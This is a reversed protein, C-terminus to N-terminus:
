FTGTYGSLVLPSLEIFGLIISPIVPGGYFFVIVLDSSANGLSEVFLYHLSRTSSMNFYGSYWSSQMISPDVDPLQTVLDQEREDLAMSVLYLTLITLKSM